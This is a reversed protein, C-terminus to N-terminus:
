VYQCVRERCSARGIQDYRETKQCAIIGGAGGQNDVVFTQGLEKGWAATVARGVFDSGGGPSVPVIYTIARSPYASQAFSVHPLSLAAVSTALFSRRDM